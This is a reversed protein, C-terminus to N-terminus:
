QPAFFRGSRRIRPFMKCFNNGPKRLIFNPNDKSVQRGGSHLTPHLRNIRYLRQFYRRPDRNFLTPLTQERSTQLFKSFAFNGATKRNHVAAADSLREATVGIATLPSHRLAGNKGATIWRATLPSFLAARKRRTRTRTTANSQMVAGLTASQIGRSRQPLKEGRTRRANRTRRTAGKAEEPERPVNALVEIAAPGEELM